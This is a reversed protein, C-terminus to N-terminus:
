FAKLQLYCLAGGVVSNFPLPTATLCLFFDLSNPHSTKSGAPQTRGQTNVKGDPQYHFLANLYLPSWLSFYLGDREKEKETLSDKRSAEEYAMPQFRTVPQPMSQQNGGKM